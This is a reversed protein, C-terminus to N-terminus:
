PSVNLGAQIEQKTDAAEQLWGSDCHSFGGRDKM